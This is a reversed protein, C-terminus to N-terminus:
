REKPCIHHCAPYPVRALLYSEKPPIKQLDRKVFIPKKQCMEHRAPTEHPLRKGRTCTDTSLHPPMCPVFRALALEDRKPADETPKKERIYTEKCSNLDKKVYNTAHMPRMQLDREVVLSRQLCIHLYAPWPIVRKLTEKINNSPRKQIVYIDARVPRMQLDCAMTRARALVDRTLTENTPRKEM